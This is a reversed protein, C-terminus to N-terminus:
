VNYSAYRVDAKIQPIHAKSFACLLDPESSVVPVSASFRGLDEDSLGGPLMRGM